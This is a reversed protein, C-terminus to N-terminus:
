EFLNEEFAGVTQLSNAKTEAAGHVVLARAADSLNAVPATYVSM